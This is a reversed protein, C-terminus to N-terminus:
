RYGGVHPPPVRPRGELDAETDLRQLTRTM